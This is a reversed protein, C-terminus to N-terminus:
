LQVEIESFGSGAMDHQGNNKERLKTKLLFVATELSELLRRSEDEGYCYISVMEADGNYDNKPNLYNTLEVHFKSESNLFRIVAVHNKQNDDGHNGSLGVGVSWPNVPLITGECMEDYKTSIIKQTIKIFKEDKNM